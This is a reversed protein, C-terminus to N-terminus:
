HRAGAVLSLLACVKTPEYPKPVFASGPVKEDARLVAGSTYVILLDPCM